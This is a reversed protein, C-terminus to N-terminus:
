FKKPIYIRPETSNPPSPISPSWKKLHITKRKEINQCKDISLLLTKVSHQLLTFEEVVLKKVLQDNM